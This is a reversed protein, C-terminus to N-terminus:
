LTKFWHHFLVEECTKTLLWEGCTRIRNQMLCKLNELMYVYMYMYGVHKKSHVSHPFSPGNTAFRHSVLNGACPEHQSINQFVDSLSVGDNALIPMGYICRCPFWTELGNMITHKPM